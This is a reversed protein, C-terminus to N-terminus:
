SAIPKKRRWWQKLLEALHDIQAEGITYQPEGELVYPEIDEKTYLEYGLLEHVEDIQRQTRRQFDKLVERSVKPKSSKVAPVNECLFNSFKIAESPPLFSNLRRQLEAEGVTISRNVVSRNPLVLTGRNVGLWDEIVGVLDRRHESFNKIQLDIGAKRSNEIVRAVHYPRTFKNLVEEFPCDIRVLEVSQLWSSAANELPNRVFLIASVESPDFRQVIEDLAEGTSFRQFIGENSLLLTNGDKIETDDLTEALKKAHVNGTTVKGALAKERVESSVPYQIGHTELVAESATLAAQIYSTGTKGHGIHLKLKM